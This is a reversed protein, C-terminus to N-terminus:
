WGVNVFSLVVVFVWLDFGGLPEQVYSSARRASSIHWSFEVERSGLRERASSPSAV